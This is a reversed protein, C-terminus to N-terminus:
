ALYCVISNTSTETYQGLDYFFGLLGNVQLNRL